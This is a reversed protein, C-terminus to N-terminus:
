IKDRRLEFSKIVGIQEERQPGMFDGPDAEGNVVDRVVTGQENQTM